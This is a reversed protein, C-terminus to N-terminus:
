LPTFLNVHLALSFRHSNRREEIRHSILVSNKVNLSQIGLKGTTVTECEKFKIQHSINLRTDGFAMILQGTRNLFKVALHGATLKIVLCPLSLQLFCCNFFTALLVTIRSFMNLRGVSNGLCFEEGSCIIRDILNCDMVFFFYISTSEVLDKSNVRQKERSTFRVRFNM